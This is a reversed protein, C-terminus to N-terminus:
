DARTPVAPLVARLIPAEGEAAAVPSPIAEVVVAM